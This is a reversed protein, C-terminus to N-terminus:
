LGVAGKVSRAVVECLSALAAGQSSRHAMLQAVRWVQSRPPVPLFAAARASAGPVCIDGRGLIVCARQGVGGMPSRGRGDSAQGLGHM